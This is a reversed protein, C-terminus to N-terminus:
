YEDLQIRLENIAQLIQDPSILEGDVRNILNLLKGKKNLQSVEKYIQGMNLEAVLAADVKSILKKLRANPFPWITIPRFLGVKIGDVRAMRVAQRASRSTSGYAILLIEADEVMFEEYNIIEDLHFQIKKELRKALKDAVDSTGLPFGTEDHVLGSVHFRSKGMMRLPTIFGSVEEYPHYIEEDGLDDALRQLIWESPIPPVEISERLHGLSEDMLFIVPVRFREALFFARVILTYTEKVSNPYLAIVPHDGHTGWRAQMIDGQSVKTPMGTSPGGRMVNVFVSPTETMAAYGIAEQMLSFGPGSTATMSKVGALSAGIIACASALEDEMQIFTGGVRPLEQAFTEAIETAPTIPYGAFFRCGASIAGYACAEDGSVLVYEGTKIM